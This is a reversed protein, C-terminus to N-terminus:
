RKQGFDIKKLGGLPRKEKPGEVGDVNSGKEFSVTAQPLLIVL